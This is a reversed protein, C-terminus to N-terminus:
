YYLCADFQLSTLTLIIFGLHSISSYALFRKIRYQAGKGVSGVIMSSIGALIFLFSVPELLHYIQM